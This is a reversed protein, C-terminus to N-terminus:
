LYCIFNWVRFILIGFCILDDLNIKHNFKNNIVQNKPNALKFIHLQCLPLDM